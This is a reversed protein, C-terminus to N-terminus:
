KRTLVDAIRALTKVMNERTKEAVKGRRLLAQQKDQSIDWSERVRTGGEADPELEYRWIRGATIKGMFGKPRAQWAIRENEEFEVVTNVMSYGVVLKMSMGFTDGLALRRSPEKAEKVTGSGDILPHKSPDALLDFIAAPTAPITREVSVVDGDM